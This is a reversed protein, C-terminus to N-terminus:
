SWFLPDVRFGLGALLRASDPRGSFRHVVDCADLAHRWRRAARRYDGHALRATAPRVRRNAGAHRGVRRDGTACPGVFWRALWNAAFFFCVAIATMLGCCALTAIRVSQVARHDDRAGLCQGVVTTAAVGFASGPLYALSEITIAVGHAGAAVNGLRNIISLFWFQCGVIALVDAGGPVGIRLLRRILAFDPRMQRWDIRLGYRGILLRVSVIVATTFYGAVAAYALGDWGLRPIPGLGRVLAIAVVINVVNECIMAVLGTMMDGAGRLIAIGVQGVMIAPLAPLAITLYRTTLEAAEGQLGMVAILRQGILLGLVLVILTLMAGLVLAQNAVRKAGAVDGAGIFRAVMATASISVAAFLGPLFGLFYAVLTVAALFKDGPLFHGTLWKDSFGMLMNLLQEAMVPAALRM